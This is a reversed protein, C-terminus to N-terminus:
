SISERAQSWVVEAAAWLSGINIRDPQKVLMRRYFDMPDAAVQEVDAVDELYRITADIDSPSDPRDPDKHGCVVFLPDLDKLARLARIWSMRTSATSTTLYPYTNNYVVDGAGVLGADPVWLSTTHPSDTFGTEIIRAEHGAFEFSGGDIVDPFEVTPIRGPFLREWFGVRMAQSAQEELQARTGATALFRARPFASRLQGVGFAHDGHGHTIYM